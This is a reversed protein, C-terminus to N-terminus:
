TKGGRELARRGHHQSDREIEGIRKLIADALDADSRGDRTIGYLAAMNDLYEGHILPEGIKRAMYGDTMDEDSLRELEAFLHNNLDTLKNKM